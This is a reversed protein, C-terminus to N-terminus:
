YGSGVAAKGPKIRVHEGQYRIGKGKYNDPKRLARIQAAVQGVRQKDIGSVHILSREVKIEIDSPVPFSVQHSFGINLNLKDEVKEAKYGVGVLELTKSFGETVGKLMNSIMRHVLGQHSKADKSEGNRDIWYKADDQRISIFPKFSFSLEGKPGEVKVSSKGLTLKAKDPPVIPVKGMRSM